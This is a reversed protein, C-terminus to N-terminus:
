GACVVMECLGTIKCQRERWRAVWALAILAYFFRLKKLILRLNQGCGCLVAHLYDGLAGKLWNRRLLGDNKMHGIIPEIASRRRIDRRLRPTIGKKLRSHYVKIDDPASHGRYGLDVFAEKPRHGTLIEVQELAERLTHGDHSNGPMSRMGVVLGEKHTSAITVKVGFEYPTRSKGKSICEVEPAHLSYLKNKSDKKQELLRRAQSLRHQLEALGEAPVAVIQREIDRVIRGVISKLRRLSGRMRKFQKAHAYRGIQVAVRPAERNYNQRLKLGGDKALKVLKIRVRELLRSDTPHAIAKEQVTTDVIVKDFSRKEVMKGTRAAEITQTLLWEVGEEGIRQRWRTLASPNCPLEHQFYTEGCFHQWYPNEVWREVLVEDSVGYTHQLYLLGAVLRPPLAPRGLTSPFFGSWEREFVRWDILAALKVLPRQIDIMEVLEQRFLEKSGPPPSKPGM